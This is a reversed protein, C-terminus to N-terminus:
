DETEEEEDEEVLVEQDLFGDYRRNVVEVGDIEARFRELLEDMTPAQYAKVCIEVANVHGGSLNIGIARQTQEPIGQIKSLEQATTEKSINM